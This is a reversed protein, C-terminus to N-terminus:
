AKELRFRRGAPDAAGRYLMSSMGAEIQTSPEACIPGGFSM